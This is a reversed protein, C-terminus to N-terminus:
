KKVLKMEWEAPNIPIRVETGTPAREFDRAHREFGLDERPAIRWDAVIGILSLALVFSATYRVIRSRAKVALFLLVAFVCLAPIFWYRIATESNAMAGWQPPEPSVAPSYLAVAFISIAFLMFLRLEFPAKLFAYVTLILGLLNVIIISGDKWLRHTDLWEFGSSGFIPGVFIHRGLIRFLFAPGAGLAAQTPRPTTLLGYIQVLAGAMLIGLLVLMWQERKRYYKLVAIPILLLCLPGSFASLGVAVIDFLRAGKSGPPGAFIVLFALLALHWQSNTVNAYIEASHPLALYIFALVVRWYLMPVIRGLRPSVIFAAVVVQISIALINFFIPAYELPLGQSCIAALRSFTQYYGAEPTLLSYLAGHNYADAYWLKGDEAWFQANFIADPRRSVILLFATPVALLYPILEKTLKDRFSM